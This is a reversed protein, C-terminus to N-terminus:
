PVLLHNKNLVGIMFTSNTFLELTELIFLVSKFNNRLFLGDLSRVFKCMKNVGLVCICVHIHM